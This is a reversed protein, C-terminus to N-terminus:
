RKLNDNEDYFFEYGRGGGHSDYIDFPADPGETYDTGMVSISGGYLRLLTPHTVIMAHQTRMRDAMPGETDWNGEFADVDWDIRKGRLHLDAHEAVGLVQAADHHTM